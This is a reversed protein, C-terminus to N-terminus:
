IQHKGVVNELEATIESIAKMLGDCVAPTTSRNCVIRVFHGKEDYRGSGPAFDIMWGKKELGHTILRTYYTNQKAEDLESTEVDNPARMYYFCVQTCPVKYTKGVLYLNPSAAILKSLYQAGEYAAEVQKAIGETGYYRWHIYL